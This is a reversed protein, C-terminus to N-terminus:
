PWEVVEHIATGTSDPRGPQRLTARSLWKCERINLISEPFLDSLNPFVALATEGLRGNRIEQSDELHLTAGSADLVVDSDTIRAAPARAGNLVVVQRASPGSWDIWVLSDAANVFRGWRLRRIPLRWPPISLKLHEVYGWGKLPKEEGIRVTAAARPAICNWQLSGAGAEFLVERQPRGLDRWSASARWHSSQWEVSGDRAVPASNRRLSYEARAPSDRERILLSEYHIPLIGLRLEAHYLIVADGEDGVCDAYWKSLEFASM